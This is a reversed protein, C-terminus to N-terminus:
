WSEMLNDIEREARDRAWGYRKQLVGILQDRRGAAQELENDTLQGWKQKVKGKFQNWNGAIHDWNMGTGAGSDRTRLTVDGEREVKIGEKRVDGSLHETDRVVRKGVSVEEAVVAEKGLRVQEGHVPVRIEQGEGIDGAAIGAARGHVPTREIIVEEREVPVEIHKTVTHVEKL